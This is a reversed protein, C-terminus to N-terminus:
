NRAHPRSRATRRSRPPWRRSARQLTGKPLYTACETKLAETNRELDARGAAEIQDVPLDVRETDKVM